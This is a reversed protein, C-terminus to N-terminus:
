LAGAQLRYDALFQCDEAGLTKATATTSNCVQCGNYFRIGGSAFDFYFWQGAPVPLTILCNTTDNPLAAADHIQIWQAPGGNYGSLSYLWGPGTAITGSANPAQQSNAATPFRRNGASIRPNFSM